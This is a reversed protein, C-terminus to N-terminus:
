YTATSLPCATSRSAPPSVFTQWTCRGTGSSLTAASASAAASAKQVLYECWRRNIECMIEWVRPLLKQILDQPWTELAESMVTHNTYAVCQKVIDWADDWGLGHEDMFLRMLEPIVLTPHTDNIQIVHHVAFSKM